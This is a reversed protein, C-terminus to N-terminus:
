RFEEAGDVSRKLQALIDWCCAVFLAGTIIMTM